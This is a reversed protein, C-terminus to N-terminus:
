ILFTGGFNQPACVGFFFFSSLHPISIANEVCADYKDHLQIITQSQTRRDIIATEM